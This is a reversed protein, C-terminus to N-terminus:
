NGSNTGKMEEYQRSKFKVIQQRIFALFDQVCENYNEGSLFFPAFESACETCIVAKKKMNGHKGMDLQVWIFAQTEDYSECVACQCQTFMAGERAPKRRHAFADDM